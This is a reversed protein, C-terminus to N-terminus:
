GSLARRLADVASEGRRQEVVARRLRGTYAEASGDGRLDIGGTVAPRWLGGGGSIELRAAVQREPEIKRALFHVEKREATPALEAARDALATLAEDITAYRDHSVQPGSRVTLEWRASV